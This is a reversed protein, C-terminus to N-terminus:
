EGEEEINDIEVDEMEEDWDDLEFELNDAQLEAIKYDDRKTRAEVIIEKEYCRYLVSRGTVSVKWRKLGSNPQSQLDRFYGREEEYGRVQSIHDPNCIELRQQQM